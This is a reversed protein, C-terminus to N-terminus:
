AAAPPQATPSTSTASQDPKTTAGQTTAQNAGQATEQLSVSREMLQVLKTLQELQNFQATQAIFDQNQLPNLPDQNQLQTVLLRLFDDQGMAKPGDSSTTATPQTARNDTIVKSIDM